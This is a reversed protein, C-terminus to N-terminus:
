AVQRLIAHLFYEEDKVQADQSEQPSPNWGDLSEIAVTYTQGNRHYLTLTLGNEYALLLLYALDKAKVGQTDLDLSGLLQRKATCALTVEFAWTGGVEISVYSVRPTTANGAGATLKLAFYLTKGITDKGFALATLSSGATANFATATPALATTFALPDQDVFAEIDIREGANLPSHNIEIRRFRKAIAPTAFDIKSSALWGSPSYNITGFAPQQYQLVGTTGNVYCCAANEGLIAIARLTGGTTTFDSTDLDPLHTVAGTLVDYQLIVGAAASIGKISPNILPWYVFQSSARPQLCTQSATPFPSGPKAVIEYTGSDIKALVPSTTQGVAFASVYLSGLAQCLGQAGYGEVRIIRTLNNGDFYWVDFGPGRVDVTLIAISTQYEVIDIINIANAGVPIQPQAAAAIPFAQTLDIKYLLNTGSQYYAFYGNTGQNIVWWQQATGNVSSTVATWTAGDSSRYLQAATGAYLFSGDTDLSIIAAVAPVTTTAGNASYVNGNAEGFTYWFDGKWPVVQFNAGVTLALKSIRVWAARLQLYGPIRPDLDSDFFKRPDLFVEQYGGGSFDGDTVRPYFALLRDILNPSATQVLADRGATDSRWHFGGSEATDQKLLYGYFRTGDSLGLHYSKGVAAKLTTDNLGGAALAYTTV